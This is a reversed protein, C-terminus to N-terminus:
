NQSILSNEDSRMGENYLDPVKDEVASGEGSLAQIVADPNCDIVTLLVRAARDPRRRGQEWDQVARIDLGFRDAFKRRSLKLRKRLASIREAAPDDVIRCSLPTEGKVHALVEGLAEEIEYGLATRDNTM